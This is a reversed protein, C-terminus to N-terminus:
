DPSKSRVLLTRLLQLELANLDTYRKHAHIDTGDKIKM